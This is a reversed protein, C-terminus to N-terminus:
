STASGAADKPSLFFKQPNSSLLYAQTHNFPHYNSYWLKTNTFTSIEIIQSNIVNLAELMSKFECTDGLPTGIRKIEIKKTGKSNNEDEAKKLNGM